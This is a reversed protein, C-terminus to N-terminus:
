LFVLPRQDTREDSTLPKGADSGGVTAGKKKFAHPAAVTLVLLAISAYQLLEINIDTELTSVGQDDVCVTDYMFSQGLAGGAAAVGITVTATWLFLAARIATKAQRKRAMLWGGNMVFSGVLCIGAVTPAMSINHGTCKAKFEYVLVFQLIAAIALMVAIVAFFASKAM